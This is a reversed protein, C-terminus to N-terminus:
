KTKKRFRSYVTWINRPDKQLLQSIQAFSLNHHDKLYSVLTELVSFKRDSFIEVPIMIISEKVTLRSKQKRVAKSYTTWVTRPNRNLLSAIRSFGLKTEEKLYKCIIELASLRKNQFISVPVVLGPKEAMLNRIDDISLSYKEKLEKLALKVIKFSPDERINKIDDIDHAKKKLDELALKLIRSSSDEGAHKITQSSPSFRVSGGRRGKKM